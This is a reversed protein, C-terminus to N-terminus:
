FLGTMRDNKDVNIKEAANKKTHRALSEFHQGIAGYIALPSAGDIAFGVTDLFDSFQHKVTAFVPDPAEINNLRLRLAMLDESAKFLNEKTPIFVDTEHISESHLRYHLEAIDRDLERYKMCLDKYEM